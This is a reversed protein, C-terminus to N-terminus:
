QAAAPPSQVLHPGLAGATGASCVSEPCLARRLTVQQISGCPKQNQACLFSLGSCQLPIAHSLFLNKGLTNLIEKQRSHIFGLRCREKGRWSESGSFSATWSFFTLSNSAKTSVKCHLQKGTRSCCNKRRLADVFM